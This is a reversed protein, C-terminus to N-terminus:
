FSIVGAAVNPILVTRLGPVSKTMWGIFHHAASMSPMAFMSPIGPNAPPPMAGLHAPLIYGALEATYTNIVVGSLDFLVYEPDVKVKIDPRRLYFTTLLGMLKGYREISQYTSKLGDIIAVDGLGALLLDGETEGWKTVNKKFLKTMMPELSDATVVRTKLRPQAILHNVWYDRMKELVLRNETISMVEPSCPRSNVAEYCLYVECPLWSETENLPLYRTFEAIEELTWAHDIPAESRLRKVADIHALKANLVKKNGSLPWGLESLKEKVTNLTSIKRKKSFGQNDSLLNAYSVCVNPM